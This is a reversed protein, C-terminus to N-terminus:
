AGTLAARLINAPEWLADPLVEVNAAGAYQKGVDAWVQEPTVTSWDIESAPNVETQPTSPHGQTPPKHICSVTLVSFSIAALILLHVPRM